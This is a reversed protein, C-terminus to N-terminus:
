FVKTRGPEKGVCYEPTGEMWATARHAKKFESANGGGLASRLAPGQDGGRSGSLHADIYGFNEMEDAVSKGGSRREIDTVSGDPAHKEYRSSQGLKGGDEGGRIEETLSSREGVQTPKNGGKDEERRVKLGRVRWAMVTHVSASSTTTAAREQPHKAQCEKHGSKAALLCYNEGV